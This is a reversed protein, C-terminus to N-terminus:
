PRSQRGPREPRDLRDGVADHIHMAMDRADARAAAATKHRVLQPVVPPEINVQAAEADGLLLHHFLTVGHCGVFNGSRQCLAFVHAFGDNQRQVAHRPCFFDHYYGAQQEPLDPLAARNAASTADLARHADVFATDTARARLKALWDPALFSM